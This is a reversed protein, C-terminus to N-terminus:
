PNWIPSLRCMTETRERFCWHVFTLHFFPRMLNEEIREVAEKLQSERPQAAGEAKIPFRLHRIDHSIDDLKEKFDKLDRLVNLRESADQPDAKLLRKRVESLQELVDTNLKESAYIQPLHSDLIVVNARLIKKAHALYADIQASQKDAMSVLKQHQAREYKISRMAETAVVFTVSCVAAAWLLSIRIPRRKKKVPLPTTKRAAQKPTKQPQAARRQQQAPRKPTTCASLGGM